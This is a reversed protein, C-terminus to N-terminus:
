LPEAEAQLRNWLEDVQLKAVWGTMYEIDLLQYQIEYVRLSDQFQKESGGSDKAWRLKM